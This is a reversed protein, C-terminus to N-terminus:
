CPPDTFTAVLAHRFGAMLAEPQLSVRIWGPIRFATLTRVIYGRRLLKKYLLTDPVPVQVILYNGEGVGTRFGLQRCTEVLREKGERVMARTAAILEGDHALAMEAAQQALSNVSYVVYTKRILEVLAPAAALYGIRLAALGYMKSFTRFVVLNPYRDILRLGGPFDPREVFEGYAEDLVVVCRGDLRDLFATLTGLSWYLGTPNNPNCLFVVKTRHDIAAFVAGPDWTFDAQLPVLRAELGSFTAIWEYVAYTRDAAVINDGTECFAKILCSIAENSGNGVLFQGPEKGFRRALAERLYYSDGSPYIPIQGADAARLLAQVEPAPGVLNENNNLRVLRPIGYRRCLEPDPPSPVYPEFARIHAPVLHTFRDDM